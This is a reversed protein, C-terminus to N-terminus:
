QIKLSFIKAKELNSNETFARVNGYCTEEFIVAQEHSLTFVISCSNNDTEYYLTHKKVM